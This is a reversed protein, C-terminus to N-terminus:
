KKKHLNNELDNVLIYKNASSQQLIQNDICFHGLDQPYYFVFFLKQQFKILM